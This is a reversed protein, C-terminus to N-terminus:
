MININTRRESSSEHLSIMGKQKHHRLCIACLRNSQSKYVVLCVPLLIDLMNTDCKRTSKTSEAVVKNEKGRGVTGRAAEKM